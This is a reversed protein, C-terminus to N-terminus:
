GLLHGPRFFLPFPFALSVFGALPNLSRGSGDFQAGLAICHSPWTRSSRPPAAVQRGNRTQETEREVVRDDRSSFERM